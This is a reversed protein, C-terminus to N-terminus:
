PAVVNAFVFGNWQGRRGHRYHTSRGYNIQLNTEWFEPVNTVVRVAVTCSEKNKLLMNVRCTATKWTLSFKGGGAGALIFKRIREQRGTRNTVRLLKVPHTGAVVKGFYAPSPQIANDQSSAMTAPAAVMLGVAVVLATITRHM